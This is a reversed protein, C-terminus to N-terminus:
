RFPHSMFERNCVITETTTIPSAAHASDDGVAPLAPVAGGGTGTTEVGVITAANSGAAPSSGSPTAVFSPNAYTPKAGSPSIAFTSRAVPAFVRKALSGLGTGLLPNM